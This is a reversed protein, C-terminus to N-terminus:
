ELMSVALAAKLRTERKTRACAKLLSRYAVPRSATTTAPIRLHATSPKDQAHPTAGGLMFSLAILLSITSGSKMYRTECILPEACPNHPHSSQRSSTMANGTM